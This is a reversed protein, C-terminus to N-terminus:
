RFGNQKETIGQASWLLQSVEKLTLSAKEYERISRRALIAEELSTEGKYQPEPLKIEESSAKIFLLLLSLLLLKM